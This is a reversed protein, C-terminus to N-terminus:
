VYQWTENFSDKCHKETDVTFKNGIEKIKGNLHSLGAVELLVQFHELPVENNEVSFLLNKDLPLLLPM